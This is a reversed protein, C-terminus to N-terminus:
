ATTTIPIPPGHALQGSSPDQHGTRRRPDPPDEGRGRRGAAGPQGQGGPAPVPELLGHALGPAPGDHHAVHATGRVALADDGLRDGGQAAEVAQEVGGADHGERPQGVGIRLVPPRYELGVEEARHVQRSCGERV